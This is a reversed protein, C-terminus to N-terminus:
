RTVKANFGTLARLRRELMADDAAQPDAFEGPWYTRLHKDIQRAWEPSGDYSQLLVRCDPIGGPETGPERDLARRRYEHRRAKRAEVDRLTMPM